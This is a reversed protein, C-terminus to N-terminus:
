PGFSYVARAVFLGRWVPPELIITQPPADGPIVFRTGAVHRDAAIEALLSWAGGVAVIIGATLGLALTVRRNTGPQVVGSSNARDATMLADVGGQWAVRRRLDSFVFAARMPWSDEGASAGNGLAESRRGPPLGGLVDFRLRGVGNITAAVAVGAVAHGSTGAGVLAAGGASLDVGWTWRSPPAAAPTADTNVTPAPLPANSSWTLDRFFREVMSAFALAAADCENAAVNLEKSEGVAGARDLLAGSVRGSSAPGEQAKASLRLRWGSRAALGQQATLREDLLAQVQQPDPCRSNGEVAVSAEAASRPATQALLAAHAIAGVVM